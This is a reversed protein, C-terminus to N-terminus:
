EEDSEDPPIIEELRFDGGRREAKVLWFVERGPQGHVTVTGDTVESAGVPFPEGAPTVQVTRNGPKNLAEFYDPLTVLATGDDGISVRGTYETGSIPSETSGHRLWWGPKLPHPMQFSKAGSINLSEATVNGFVILDSSVLRGVVRVATAGAGEIYVTSPSYITGGSAGNIQLSGVQVIGGGSPTITVDGARIQGSAVTLTNNLTMAGGVVTAGTVTLKGSITVDGSITGNGSIEWNQGTLTFKGTVKTTGDIDLTGVIEVRGGSDIRLLGGIFRMRGKTISMRQQSTATELERLRRRNDKVEANLDALDDNKM